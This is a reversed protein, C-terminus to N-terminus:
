RPGSASARTTRARHLQDPLCRRRPVRADHGARQRRGAAGAPHGAAPVVAHEAPEYRRRRVTRRQLLPHLRAPGRRLGQRCPRRRNRRRVRGRGSGVPRAVRRRHQGAVARRDRHEDGGAGPAGGREHQGEHGGDPRHHLHRAGETGAPAGGSRLDANERIPASRPRRRCIPSTTCSATPRRSTSSWANAETRDLLGLLADLRGPARSSRPRPTSRAPRSRSSRWTSAGACGETAVEHLRYGAM